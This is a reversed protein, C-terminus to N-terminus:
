PNPALGYKENLESTFGSLDSDAALAGAIQQWSCRRLRSPERLNARLEMWIRTCEGDRRFAPNRDDYVLLAHGDQAALVNRLLQYPVHIPCPSHDVNASWRFLAPIKAWYLIGKATLSCRETRGRQYRYGGDCFDREYNAASSKIATQSCPTFADETFKCEVSVSRRCRFLVDSKTERGIREGLTKCALELHCDTALPPDEFFAPDGEETSIRALLQLKGLAKLTGFISQTLAQSSRMSSFWDQRDSPALTRVVTAHYGDPALVNLDAFRPQSVPPKGNGESNNLFLEPQNGFRKERYAWLQRIISGLYDDM